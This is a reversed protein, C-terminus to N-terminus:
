VLLEGLMRRMFSGGYACALAPMLLAFSGYIAGRTFHERGFHEVLLSLPVCLAIILGWRWPRRPWAVGTAMAAASVALAALAIQALQAHMYGIAGGLALATLYGPWERASTGAASQTVLPTV